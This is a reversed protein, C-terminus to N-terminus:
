AVHLLYDPQELFQARGISALVIAALEVVRLTGVIQGQVRVAFDGGQDIVVHGELTATKTPFDYRAKDATIKVDQYEILVDESGEWFVDKEYHVPNKTSLRVEGGKEPVRFRLQFNPRAKFQSEFPDSSGFPDQAIAATSVLVFFLAAAFFRGSVEGGSLRRVRGPRV